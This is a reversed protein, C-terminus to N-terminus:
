TSLSDLVRVLLNQEMNITGILFVSLLISTLAIFNSKSSNLELLLWKWVYRCAPGQLPDPISVFCPSIPMIMMLSGNSAYFM